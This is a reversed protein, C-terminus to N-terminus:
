RKNAGSSTSFNFRDDRYPSSARRNISKITSSRTMVRRSAIINFRATRHPRGFPSSLFNAAPRRGPTNGQRRLWYPEPLSPFTEKSFFSALPEDAPERCRGAEETGFPVPLRGTKGEAEKKEPFIGRLPNVKSEASPHLTEGLNEADAPPAPAPNGNGPNTPTPSPPEEGPHTPLAKRCPHPPFPPLSFSRGPVPPRFRATEGSFDTKASLLAPGATPFRPFATEKRQHFPLAPCYTSGNARSPFFFSSNLLDSPR